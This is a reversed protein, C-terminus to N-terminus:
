APGSRTPSTEPVATVSSIADLNLMLARDKSPSHGIVYWSGVYPLLIEPTLELSARGALGASCPAANLTVAREHLLADALVDFVRATGDEPGPVAAMRLTKAALPQIHPPFLAAIKSMLADFRDQPVSADRSAKRLLMVLMQSERLNLAGHGTGRTPGDDVFRYGQCRILPLRMDSKIINLDAQVQRESLHFKCSLDRRSQGPSAAIEEVIHWIRRFRDPALRRHGGVAMNNEFTITGAEARAM